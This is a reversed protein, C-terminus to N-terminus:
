TLMPIPPDILRSRFVQAINRAKQIAETALPGVFHMSVTSEWLALWRDLHDARLPLGIHQRLPNGHYVHQQLLLHAWFRCMRDLHPAWADDAIRLAFVPALEADARVRAYFAHVLTAVDDTTRIDTLTTM